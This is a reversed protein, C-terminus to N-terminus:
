VGFQENCLCVMGDFYGRGTEPRRALPYLFPAADQYAKGRGVAIWTRSDLLDYYNSTQTNYTITEVFWRGRGMRRRGSVLEYDVM